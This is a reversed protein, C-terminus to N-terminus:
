QEAAEEPGPVRRHATEPGAARGSRGVEDQITEIAVRWYGDAWRRMVSRQTGQLLIPRGDRDTGRRMWEGHVLALDLVAVNEDIMVEYLLKAEVARSLLRRIEEHGHVVHGRPLEIVADVEYHTLAADLDGDSLADYILRCVEDPRLARPPRIADPMAATEGTRARDALHEAFPIETSRPSAAM